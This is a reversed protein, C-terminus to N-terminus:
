LLSKKRTTAPDYGILNAYRGTYSLVHAHKGLICSDAGGDSIAYVSNNFLDTNCSDFHASVDLVDSVPGMFVRAKVMFAHSQMADDDIDNGDGIDMDGLSNVLNAITARPQVNPYQKPIDTFSLKPKPHDSERTKKRIENIKDKIAPELEKWIDTPITMADRFSRANFMRYAPEIGSELAITHFLKSVEELNKSHEEDNSVHMLRPSPKLANSHDLLIANKRLYAATQAYTMDEDDRCKQILHTIGSATKINSLLM